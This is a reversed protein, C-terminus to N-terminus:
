GTVEEREGGRGELVRFTRCAIAFLILAPLSGGLFPVLGPLWVFLAYCLLAAGALLVSELPRALTILVSQIMYQFFRLRVHVVLPFLYLLSVWCIVSITILIPRIWDLSGEMVALLRFDLILASFMLAYIGMMGNLRWFGERYARWFTSFIPVGEGERLWKRIVTYLAATAPFLGFVGGGLLTFGLWLLNLTCLRFLGDGVQILRGAWGGIEM